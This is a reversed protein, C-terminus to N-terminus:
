NACRDARSSVIKLRNMDDKFDTVGGKTLPRLIDVTWAPLKALRYHM